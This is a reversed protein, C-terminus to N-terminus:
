EVGRKRITRMPVPDYGYTGWPNCRLIRKLSFYTGKLLGHDELSGIAYNSCTPLHKCYSHWPGPIIQYIKVIGILIKKM